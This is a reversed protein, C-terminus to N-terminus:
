RKRKPEPRLQAIRQGAASDAILQALRRQQTAEQRASTVWHTVLKRYSPPQSEFFTWARKRKQFQALQAPTFHVHEHEFSYRNTKAEDRAEFAQRGAPMMLGAAELERVRKLNVASWISGKRRPTFRNTYSEDDISKRIGDIWGFCLAQDVAEPYSISTRSSGKKYFGLWIEAATAQNKQLWKRFGAANTFFRVNTPTPM